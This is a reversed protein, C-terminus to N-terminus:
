TFMIASLKDIKINFKFLCILILKLEWDRISELSLFYRNQNLLQSLEPFIKRQFYQMNLMCMSCAM